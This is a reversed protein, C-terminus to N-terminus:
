MYMKQFHFCNNRNILRRNEKNDKFLRILEISSNPITLLFGYRKEQEIALRQVALIVEFKLHVEIGNESPPLNDDLYDRIISRQVDLDETFKSKILEVIMDVHEKSNDFNFDDWFGDPYLTQHENDVILEFASADFTVEEEEDLNDSKSPKEDIQIEQNSEIEQANINEM